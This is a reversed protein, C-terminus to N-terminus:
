NGSSKLISDVIKKKQDSANHYNILFLYEKASIIRHKGNEDIVRVVHINEGLPKM